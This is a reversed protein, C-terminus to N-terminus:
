MTLLKLSPSADIKSCADILPGNDLNVNIEFDHTAVGITFSSRFRFVHGQLIRYFSGSMLDELEKRIEEVEKMRESIEKSGMSVGKLYHAKGNPRM